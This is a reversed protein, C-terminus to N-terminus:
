CKCGEIFPAVEFARGMKDLAQGVGRLVGVVARSM